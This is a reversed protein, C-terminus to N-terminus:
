RLPLLDDGDRVRPFLRHGASRRVPIPHTCEEGRRRAPRWLPLERHLPERRFLHYKRAPSFLLKRREGRRPDQHDAPLPEPRQHHLREIVPGPFRGPILVRDGHDRDREPHRFVAPLRGPEGPRGPLERDPQLLQCPRGGPLGTGRGQRERPRRRKGHQLIAGALEIRVLRSFRLM